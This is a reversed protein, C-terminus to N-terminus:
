KWTSYSKKQRRKHKTIKKDTTSSSMQKPLILPAREFPTPLPIEKEPVSTSKLKSYEDRSILIMTSYKM